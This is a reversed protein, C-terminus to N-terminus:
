EGQVSIVELACYAETDVMGVQAQVTRSHPALNSGVVKGAQRGKPDEAEEM